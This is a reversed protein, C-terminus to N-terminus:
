EKDFSERLRKAFELFDPRSTPVSLDLKPLGAETCLRAYKMIVDYSNRDENKTFYSPNIGLKM